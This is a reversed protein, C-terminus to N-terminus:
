LVWGISFLISFILLVKGTNALAANLDAGTKTFVTHMVPVALAFAAGSALAYYHAETKWCLYAPIAITAILLSVVYESKAFNPGFRVALTRKGANRDGEIDRLNNVCLIAVSFLGPALGAVAVEHPLAYTQLYYTGAVAVPGFFVLVFVEGLGIYGYPRPGGTYALAAVIALIGVVLFFPGGRYVIYLGPVFVAAFTLIIAGKMTQPRILGAQTARVPGLRAETDAGKFFDSYDNAFNAGIQLLLAGLLAAIASPAHFGAADAAMASAILIPTAGAWLTKPRMATIWRNPERDSM